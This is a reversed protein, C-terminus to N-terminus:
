PGVLHVCSFFFFFLAHMLSFMVNHKQLLVNIPRLTGQKSSGQSPSRWLCQNSESLACTSPSYCIAGDSGSHATRKIHEIVTCNNANQQDLSDNPLDMSIAENGHHNMIGEAEQAGLFIHEKFRFGPHCDTSDLCAGSELSNYSSMINSGRKPINKDSYLTSCVVPLQMEVKGDIKLEQSPGGSHYDSTVLDSFYSTANGLLTCYSDLRVWRTPFMNRNTFLKGSDINAKSPGGHSHSWAFPPLSSKHSAQRGSHINNTQLSVAPVPADRLLADLDITPPLALRELIDKPQHLLSDNLSALAGPICSDQISTSFFIILVLIM